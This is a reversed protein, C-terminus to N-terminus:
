KTLNYFDAHKYLWIKRKFVSKDIYGLRMHLYIISHDSIDSEVSTIGSGLNVIQDSIIIPDLLTSSSNTVRTPEIIINKVSNLSMIDKLNHHAPNLQDGNFDGLIVVRDSVSTAREFDINITNWIDAKASPPRYLTGILINRGKSSLEIWVLELRTDFLDHRM